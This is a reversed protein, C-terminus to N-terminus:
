VVGQGIVIIVVISYDIDYIIIILFITAVNVVLIVIANRAVVAACGFIDGIIKINRAIIRLVASKAVM